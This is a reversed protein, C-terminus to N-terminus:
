LGLRGFGPTRRLSIYLWGDSHASAAAVDGVPAAFFGLVSHCPVGHLVACHTGTTEGCNEEVLVVSRAESTYSKGRELVEEIAKGVTLDRRVGEQLVVVCDKLAQTTRLLIRIPIVPASDGLADAAFGTGYVSADFRAQIKDLPLAAHTAALPSPGLSQARLLTSAKLSSTFVDISFTVCQVDEPTSTLISFPLDVVDHLTDFLAGVPLFSPFKVKVGGVTSFAELSPADYGDRAHTAHSVLYHLSASRAFGSIFPPSDKLSVQIPLFINWSCSSM